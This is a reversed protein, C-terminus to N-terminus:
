PENTSKPTLFHTLVVTPLNQAHEIPRCEDVVAISHAAPVDVLASTKWEEGTKSPHPSTSAGGAHSLSSTM